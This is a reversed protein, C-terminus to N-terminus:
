KNLKKTINNKQKRRKIYYIKESKNLIFILSNVKTFFINNNNINELKKLINLEYNKKDKITENNLNELENMDKKISFNLLYKIEYENNCYNKKIKDVIENLLINSIKNNKINQKKKIINEIENKNVKIIIINIRNINNIISNELESVEKLLDEINEMIIYFFIKYLLKSLKNNNNNNM